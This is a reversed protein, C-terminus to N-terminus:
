GQDRKKFLNDLLFQYDGGNIYEICAQRFDCNNCRVKSPEPYIEMKGLTERYSWYARRLFEQIAHETRYYKGREFLSNKVRPGPAQKRLGNVIVGVVREDLGLSDALSQGLWVQATVQMDVDYYAPEWRSFTKHELSFIRGTDLDRVLGDLRAVVWCKSPHGTPTPLPRELTKETALVEFREIGQYNDLYGQLMVAGLNVMEQFKQEDDTWQFKVEGRRKKAWTLFVEVPDEKYGYYRELGLHVGTGLDLHENFFQARYGERYAWNWALRCGMSELQSPSVTRHRQAM